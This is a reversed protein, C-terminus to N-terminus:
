WGARRRAEYFRSSEPRYLLVLIVAALVLSVPGLALGLGTASARALDLRHGTRARHTRCRATIALTNPASLRIPM